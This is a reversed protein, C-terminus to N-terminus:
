RVREREWARRGVGKQNEVDKDGEIECGPSNGITCLAMLPVLSACPVARVLTTAAAIM